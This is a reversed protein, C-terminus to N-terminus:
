RLEIYKELNLGAEKLIAHFTRTNLDTAHRPISIRTTGRIYLDHKKGPGFFEFGIKKLVRIVKRPPDTM